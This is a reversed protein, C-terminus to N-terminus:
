PVSAIVLVSVMNFMLVTSLCLVNVGRAPSMAAHPLLPKREAQLMHQPQNGCGRSLKLWAECRNTVWAPSSRHYSLLPPLMLRM